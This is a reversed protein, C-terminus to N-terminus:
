MCLGCFLEGNQPDSCLNLFYWISWLLTITWIIHAEFVYSPSVWARLWNRGRSGGVCRAVAGICQSPLHPQYIYSLHHLLSFLRDPFKNFMDRLSFTDFNTQICADRRQQSLLPCECIFHNLDRMPHGCHCTHTKPPGSPHFHWAYSETFTHDVALQLAIFTQCHHYKPKKVAWSPPLSQQREVSPPQPSFPQWHTHTYAFCRPIGNNANFQELCMAKQYQKEWVQFAKIRAVSKQYAASNMLNLGNSLFSLAAEAALIRTHVNYLLNNNKPSWTLAVQVHRYSLTFLM